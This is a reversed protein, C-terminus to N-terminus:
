DGEIRDACGDGVGAHVDGGYQVGRLGVCEKGWVLLWDAPKIEAAGFFAVKRQEREGWGACVTGCQV